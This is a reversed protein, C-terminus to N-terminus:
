DLLGDYVRYTVYKIKLIYVLGLRILNDSKQAFYEMIKELNLFLIIGFAKHPIV